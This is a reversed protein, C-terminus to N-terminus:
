WWTVLSETEWIEITSSIIENEVTQLYPSDLHWIRLLGDKSLKVPNELFNIDALVFLFKNGVVVADTDIKWVILM